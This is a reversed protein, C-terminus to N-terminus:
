TAMAVTHIGVDQEQDLPPACDAQSNHREVPPQGCPSHKPDDSSQATAEPPKRQWVWSLMPPNPSHSQNIMTM